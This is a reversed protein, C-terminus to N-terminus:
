DYTMDISVAPDIFGDRPTLLTSIWVSQSPLLPLEFDYRIELIARECHKGVNGARHCKLSVHSPRRNLQDILEQSSYPPSEMTSIKAAQSAFATKSRYIAERGFVRYAWWLLLVAILVVVVRRANRALNTTQM